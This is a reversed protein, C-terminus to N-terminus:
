VIDPFSRASPQVRKSHSTRYQGLTHNYASAIRYGASFRRITTRTHHYVIDPVSRACPAVLRAPEPSHRQSLHTTRYIDPVSRAYRGVLRGHLTRYQGLTHHYWHPVVQRTFLPRPHM